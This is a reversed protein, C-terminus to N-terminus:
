KNYLSLVMKILSVVGVVIDLYGINIKVFGIWCYGVDDIIVCFVEILVVVEILDGLYIGMGYCEVYDIIDVLIDVVGYVEVIM